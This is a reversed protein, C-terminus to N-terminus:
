SEKTGGWDAGYQRVGERYKICLALGSHKDSGLREGEKINWRMSHAGYRTNIATHHRREQM